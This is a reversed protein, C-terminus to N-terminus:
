KLWSPLVNGTRNSTSRAMATHAIRSPFSTSVPSRIFSAAPGTDIRGIGRYDCAGSRQRLRAVTRGRYEVAIVRLNARLSSTSAEPVPLLTAECIAWLVRALNAVGRDRSIEFGRQSHM